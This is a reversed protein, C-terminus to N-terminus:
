HAFRHLGDPWLGTGYLTMITLPLGLLCIVAFVKGSMGKLLRFHLGALYYLWLALSILPKAEWQWYHGWALSSWFMGSLLGFGLLIVALKGQSYLKAELNLHITELVDKNQRARFWELEGVLRLLALGSLMILLGLALLMLPVHILLLGHELVAHPLETQVPSDGLIRKLVFLGTVTMPLAILSNAGGQVHNRLFIIFMFLMSGVLLLLSDDSNALPLGAYYLGVAPKLQWRLLILLLYVIFVLWYLLRIHQWGIRTRGTELLVLTVLGGAQLLMALLVLYYHFLGSQGSFLLLVFSILLVALSIQLAPWRWATWGTVILLTLLMGGSLLSLQPWASVFLGIGIVFVFLAWALQDYSIGLRQRM